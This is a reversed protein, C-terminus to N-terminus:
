ALGSNSQAVERNRALHNEIDALMARGDTARTHVTMNAITTASSNDVNHVTHNLAEVHRAFGAARHVHAISSAQDMAREIGHNYGARGAGVVRRHLSENIHRAGREDM